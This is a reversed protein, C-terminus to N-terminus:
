FPNTCDQVIGYPGGNFGFGGPPSIDLDSVDEALVPLRLEYTETDETGDVEVKASILVRSWLAESKPYTIVFHGIGFGDTVLYGTGPAITPTRDPHANIVGPHTPELTNNGNIDEGPDLYSDHNIDETPCETSQEGATASDADPWWFDATGDNDSDFKTWSAKYYSVPYATIEVRVGAAPHQDDRTVIVELPLSYQVDNDEYMDNGTGIVIRKPGNESGCSILVSCSILLSLLLSIKIM